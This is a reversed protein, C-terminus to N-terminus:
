TFNVHGLWKAEVGIQLTHFSHLNSQYFTCVLLCVTDTETVCVYESYLHIVLGLSIQYFDNKYKLYYRLTKSKKGRSGSRELQCSITFLFNEGHSIKKLLIDLLFSARHPIEKEATHTITPHYYSAAVPVAIHYPKLVRRIKVKRERWSSIPKM